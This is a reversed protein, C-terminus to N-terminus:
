ASASAYAQHLHRGELEVRGGDILTSTGTGQASIGEYSTATADVSIGLRAAGSPALVKLSSADVALRTRFYGNPGTQGSLDTLSGGTGQLVVDIADFFGAQGRQDRVTVRVSVDVTDGPAVSPPMQVDVELTPNKWNLKATFLNFEEPGWVSADCQTRKRRVKLEAFSGEKPITVGASVLDAIQLEAPTALYNIGGVPRPLTMVDVLNVAVIMETDAEIDDWCTMGQLMGSLRVLGRTPCDLVPTNDVSGPAIGKATGSDLVSDSVTVGMIVVDTGAFQLDEYIEQDSFWGIQKVVSCRPPNFYDDCPRPAPVGIIDRGAQFGTSTLRSLPYYVGDNRAMNWGVDRLQDLTPQVGRSNIEFAEQVGLTQSDAWLQWIHALEQKLDVFSRLNAATLQALRTGYFVLFDDIKALVFDKTSNLAACPGAFNSGLIQVFGHWEIVPRVQADFQGWDTIPTGLGATFLDGLRQCAFEVAMTAFDEADPCNDKIMLASTNLAANVADRYDGQAKMRDFDAQAAALLQACSTPGAGLTNSGAAKGTIASSGVPATDLTSGPMVRSEDSLGFTRVETLLSVSGAGSTTPLYTLGGAAGWHLNQEEAVLGEPLSVEIMAPELLILGAPQLEVSLWRDGAPDAAYLGVLQDATLASPPFTVSIHVGQATTTEIVGGDSGITRTVPENSPPDEVNPGTSDGGCSALNLGLALLPVVLAAFHTRKIRIDM